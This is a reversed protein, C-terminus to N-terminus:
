ADFAARYVTVAAKGVRDTEVTVVDFRCPREFVEHAALYATAMRVVKRQKRPTVAEAATGCEDGGRAKVEVFVLVDGDNAVIDIEGCRTRFRRALIEYGRRELEEAALDEGHKGLTQRTDESV